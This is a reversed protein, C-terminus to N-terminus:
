QNRRSPVSVLERRDGGVRNRLENIEKTTQSSRVFMLWGAAVLCVAFVGTGVVDVVIVQLGRDRRM